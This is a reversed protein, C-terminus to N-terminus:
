SPSCKLEELIEAPWKRELKEQNFARQGEIDRIEREVPALAQACKGKPNEGCRAQTASLVARLKALLGEAQCFIERDHLFSLRAMRLEARRSSWYAEGDTFAPALKADGLAPCFFALRELRALAGRFKEGGPEAVVLGKLAEKADPTLHWSLPEAAALAAQTRLESLADAAPGHRLLPAHFRDAAAEEVWPKARPAWRAVGAGLGCARLSKRQAYFIAGGLVALGLL